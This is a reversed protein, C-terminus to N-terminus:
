PAVKNRRPKGYKENILNEIVSIISTGEKRRKFVEVKVLDYAKDNIRINPM